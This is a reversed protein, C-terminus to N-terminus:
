YIAVYIKTSKELPLVDSLCAINQQDAIDTNCETVDQQLEMLKAQIEKLEKRIDEEMENIICKDFSKTRMSEIDTSLSGKSLRDIAQYFHLTL